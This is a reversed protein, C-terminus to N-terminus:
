VDRSRESNFGSSTAASKSATTRRITSGRDTPTHNNGRQTVLARVIVIVLICLLAVPTIISRWALTLEDWPAPLSVEELSLGPVYALAVVTLRAILPGDFPTAALVALPAFLMADYWPLIYLATLLWGASLVFALRAPHLRDAAPTARLMLVIIVIAVAIAVAGVLPRSTEMGLPEDVSTRILNWPSARSIRQAAQRTQDFVHPGAIVYAPVVVLLGGGVLAIARRLDRMLVLPALLAIGYLGFPAKVAVAAGVLAGGAFASPVTGRAAVLLAAVGLAAAEVDLHVGGVLVYLLVPNVAWLVAARARREGSPGALRDILLATGLYALGGVVALVFVTIRLSPGGIVSAGRMLLTGLPGYVSTTSRWPEQVAAVVPDGTASAFEDPPIDYPDAGLAAIRGYAAYSFVDASGIPRVLVFAVVATVSGALLRGIRPQWGHRLAALGLAVGAAGLILGMVQLAIVLQPPPDVELSYPPLWGARSLPPVAVSTGLLGVCVLLAVGTTLCGIALAPDRPCTRARLV